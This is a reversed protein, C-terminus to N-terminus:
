RLTVRTEAFDWYVGSAWRGIDHLGMPGQGDGVGPFSVIYDWKLDVLLFM